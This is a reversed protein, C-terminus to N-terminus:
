PLAASSELELQLGIDDLEDEDDGAEVEDLLWVATLLTAGISLLAAIGSPMSIMALLFGLFAVQSTLRGRLQDARAAVPDATSNADGRTVFVPGEDTSTVAVVRHTITTGAGLTMTVVDGARVESAAVRHVVVLDGVSLAPAMSESRVAYLGYGAAPAIQAAAALGLVSLVFVALASELARRILRM